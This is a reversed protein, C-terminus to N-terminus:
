LDIEKMDKWNMGIQYESKLKFKEGYPNELEINFHQAVIECARKGYGRPAQGMLSDHNNQLIHMGFDVEGNDIRAQIESAAKIATIASGTSQPIWSYADRLLTDDIVGYFMRPYGYLNILKKDRRLTAEVYAQFDGQLEPFLGHLGGLFKTAQRLSIRIEGESKDLINMQFAQPKIGYNGSHVTMKALYYYRRSPIDNDSDKIKQQLAGWEPDSKLKGIPMTLFRAIKPDGTAEVWKDFFLHLAVYVHPKVGHIFLERYSSGKRCLYAVVQAEVAALDVQWLEYGPDPIIFRKTRKNYNQQNTGWLGFLKRSGLRFSKTGAIDYVGTLRNKQKHNKWLVSELKGLEVGLRRLYMVLVLPPLDHKGLLKYLNKKSTVNGGRPQKLGLYDYLYYGVQKPSRPNLPFHCMAKLVKTEFFTRRIHIEDAHKCMGQVDVALGRYALLLFVRLSENAQKCSATAGIEAAHKTIGEHVLALTEVDKANYKWLKKDQTHNRTFFTAEDKHYPQNTYLSICHGLSKEIGPYCRHHMLMTDEIQDWAPPPIKYRWLLIFLDFFANHAVITNFRFLYVLSQFAKALEYKDYALHGNFEVVPICWVLSSSISVSFVTIQDTLPNTEIDFFVREGKFSRCWAHFESLPPQIKYECENVTVGHKLIRVAKQIDAKFWFRYNTRSTAGKNKSAFIADKSDDNEKERELIQEALLPNLTAEYSKRDVADQPTFSAIYTIGNITIPSGRMHSLKPDKLGKILSLSQLGLLLVVKTDHRLPKKEDSTRIEIFPRALPRICSDFYDGAIGSILHEKDFRSPVDLVVTLGCYNLLPEDIM